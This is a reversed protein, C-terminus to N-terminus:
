SLLFHMVHRVLVHKREREMERGRGKEREYGIKEKQGRKSSHCLDEWGHKKSPLHMQPRQQTSKKKLFSSGGSIVFPMMLPRIASAGGVEETKETGGLGLLSKRAGKGGAEGM